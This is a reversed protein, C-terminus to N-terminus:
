TPAREAPAPALGQVAVSALINGIAEASVSGGTKYWQVMWNFMGLVGYALIVPDGDRVRHAAQGEIVVDLIIQEYERRRALYREREAADLGNSELLFTKVHSIKKDFNRSHCLLLQHLRELPDDIDQKLVENAEHILDDIGLALVGLLISKKSPFYHYLSPKELGCAQAIDAVSTRDFGRVAFLEAAADIIHRKRKDVSYGQNAVWIDRAASVSDETM